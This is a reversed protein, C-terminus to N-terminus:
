PKATPTGTSAPLIIVAKATMDKSGATKVGEILVDTNAQVDAQTATSLAPIKNTVTLSKYPTTGGLTVTLSRNSASKLTVTNGNVSDVRAMVLKSGPTVVYLGYANVTRTAPAGATINSKEVKGLVQVKDGPKLSNVTQFGGNLVVTTPSTVINLDKGAHTTLTITDGNIQKITGNAVHEAIRKAAKGKAAAAVTAAKGQTIVRADIVGPDGTTMGAVTAAKDIQIDDATAQAAKGDKNEVIWTNANINVTYEGSRAKLKLSGSSVSEVKGEIKTPHPGTAVTPRPTQTQVPTQALAGTSFAGAGLMAAIVVGAGLYQKVRNM